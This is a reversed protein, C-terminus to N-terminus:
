MQQIGTHQTGGAYLIHANSQQMTSPVDQCKMHMRQVDATKHGLKAIWQRDHHKHTHPNSEKKIRKKAVKKPRKNSKNAKTNKSARKQLWKKRM